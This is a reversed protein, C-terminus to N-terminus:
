PTLKSVKSELAGIGMQGTMESVDGQADVFVFYPIGSIAVIHNKTCLKKAIEQALDLDDTNVRYFRVGKKNDRAVSKYRPIMIQCHPCKPSYFEVVFPRQDWQVDAVTKVDMVDQAAYSNCQIGLFVLSWVVISRYIFKKM